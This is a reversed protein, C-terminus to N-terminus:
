ARHGSEDTPVALELAEDRCEVAGAGAAAAEDQEGALRADALRPQRGLEGCAAAVREHQDARRAVAAARRVPRDDGRQAVAQPGFRVRERAAPRESRVERHDQGLEADGGGRGVPRREELRDAAGQGMEGPVRRDEDHEVVQVAGVLRRELEQRREGLREGAGADEDDGGVAGVAEGAVVPQAPQAVLQPAGAQQVLERDPRQLGGVEGRQEGRVEFRCRRRRENAGHVVRRLPRREEDLLQARRKADAPQQLAAAVPELEGAVARDRQGVGHAVRDEDAGRLEAVVAARRGLRRRDGALREVEVEDARERTRVADGFQERAAHRALLVEARRDETVPQRAVRQVGVDRPHAPARQVAREGLGEFRGARRAARGGRVPEAGAVGGARAIAEQARRGLGLRHEGDAVGGGGAALREVEPGLALVLRQAGLRQGAVRAAGLERPLEGLRRPRPALQGGHEAADLRRVRPPPQRRDELQAAVAVARKRRAGRRRLRVGGLPGWGVRRDLTERHGVLPPRRRQVALRDLEGDSRALVGVARPAQVQLQAREPELPERRRLVALVLRADLDHARGERDRELVIERRDGGVEVLAQADREVVGGVKAAGLLREVGREIEALRGAVAPHLDRADRAQGVDQALAAVPPAGCLHAALEDRGAGRDHTASPM